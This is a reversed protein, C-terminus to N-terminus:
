LGVTKRVQALADDLPVGTAKGSEIEQIRRAIEVSWTKEIVPDVDKASAAILQEILEAREGYPLQKAEEVLEQFKRKM